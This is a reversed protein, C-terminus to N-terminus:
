NARGEIGASTALVAAALRIIPTMTRINLTAVTDRPTHRNGNGGGDEVDAVTSYGQGSFSCDDSSHCSGTSSRLTLGINFDTNLETHLALLDRRDTMVRAPNRTTPNYGIMDLNMYFKLCSTPRCGSMLLARAYHASGVLGIEEADFLVFRLEAKFRYGTMAEALLMTGISGSANDDAGTTNRVSDLHGGVIYVGAAPDSGPLTIEVNRYSSWEDYRVKAAPATAALTAKVWETAQRYNATGTARNPRSLAELQTLTSSVRSEQIKGILEAILDRPTSGGDPTGGSGSGAAGGGDGSVGGSGASSGGTAGAGAAGGAGAGAAGGTTGADAAGGAAGAGAAGGAAATGASGGTGGAGGTAAGGVGGTNTTGAAGTSGAGGGTTAGSGSAGGQEPGTGDHSPDTPGCSLALAPALLLVFCRHTSWERRSLM